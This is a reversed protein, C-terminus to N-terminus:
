KRKRRKWEEPHKNKPHESCKVLHGKELPFDPDTEENWPFLTIKRGCELCPVNEVTPLGFLAKAMRNRRPNGPFSFADIRALQLLNKTLDIV